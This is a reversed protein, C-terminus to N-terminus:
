LKRPFSICSLGVLVSLNRQIGSGAKCFRHIVLILLMFLDQRRLCHFGTVISSKSIGFVANRIKNLKVAYLNAYSCCYM